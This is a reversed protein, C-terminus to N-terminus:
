EQGTTDELLTEIEEDSPVLIKQHILEEFENIGEMLSLALSKATIHSLNLVAEAKGNRRALIFVDNKSVGLAFENFYINTLENSKLANEVENSPQHSTRTM